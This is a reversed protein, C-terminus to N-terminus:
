SFVINLSLTSMINNYSVVQKSFGSQGKKEKSLKLAKQLEEGCARFIPDMQVEYSRKITAIFDELQANGHTGGLVEVDFPTCVTYAPILDPDSSAITAFCLPDDFNHSMTSFFNAM